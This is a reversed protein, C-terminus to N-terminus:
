TIFFYFSFYNESFFKKIKGLLELAKEGGFHNETNLEENVLELVHEFYIGADREARMM